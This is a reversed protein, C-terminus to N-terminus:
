RSRRFLVYTAGGAHDDSAAFALVRPGHPPEMLWAPLSARLVPGVASRTGRGHIVLVCRAGAALAERLDTGLAAHAEDRRLGHLDIERDPAPDGRRLSRLRRRDFGSAIGDIRGGGRDILVFRAREVDDPMTSRLTGHPPRPTSGM